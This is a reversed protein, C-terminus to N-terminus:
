ATQSAASGGFVYEAARMRYAPSTVIGEFWGRFLASEQSSMIFAKSAASAIAANISGSRASVTADTAEGPFTSETDMEM